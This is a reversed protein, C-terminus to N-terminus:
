VADPVAGVFFLIQEGCSCNQEDSRVQSSPVPCPFYQEAGCSDCLAYERPGCKPCKAELVTVMPEGEIPVCNCKSVLLELSGVFPRGADM